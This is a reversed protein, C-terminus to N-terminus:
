SGSMYQRLYEITMGQDEIIYKVVDGISIVGIVKNSQVVPLHRIRKSTMLQMCEEITDEPSVTFVDETMIEKVVTDLSTRGKLIVKRAYDRESFIGALRENELVVLAGVNKDSMLRLADLIITDPTVYLLIDGKEKLIDKVKGM